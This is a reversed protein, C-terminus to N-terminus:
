FCVGIALPREKGDEFIDCRDPLVENRGFFTSGGPDQTDGKVIGVLVRLAPLRVFSVLCAISVGTLAKKFELMVGRDLELFALASLADDVGFPVGAPVGLLERGVDMTYLWSPSESHDLSINLRSVLLNLIPRVTRDGLILLSRGVVASDALGADLSRSNCLAFAEPGPFLGFNKWASSM